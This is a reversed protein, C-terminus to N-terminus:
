PTLKVGPTFNLIARQEQKINLTKTEIEVFRSLWNLNDKAIRPCRKFVSIPHPLPQWLLNVSASM